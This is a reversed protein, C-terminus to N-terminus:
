ILELVEILQAPTVITLGCGAAATKAALFHRDGTVFYDAKAGIAAALIVADDLQLYATWKDVDPYQPDAVIEPPSNTLFAALRPIATPLKVRSAHVVEEIVLRSVLISIRGSVHLDVIRAPTGTRSYIGSVLVNSDLFIRPEAEAAM